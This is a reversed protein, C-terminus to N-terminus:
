IYIYINNMRLVPLAFIDTINFAKLFTVMMCKDKEQDMM